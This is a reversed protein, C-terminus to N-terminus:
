DYTIYIIEQHYDGHTWNVYSWWGNATETGECKQRQPMVHVYKSVTGELLGWWPARAHHPGVRKCSLRVGCVRPSTQAVGVADKAVAHHQLTQRPRAPWIANNTKDM